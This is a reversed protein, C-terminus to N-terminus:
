TTPRRVALSPLAIGRAAAQAVYEDLRRRCEALEIPNAIREKIPQRQNVITGVVKPTLATATLRLQRFLAEAGAPDAIETLAVEHVPIRRHERRFRAARAEIDYLYAICRDIPDLAEDRDLARAAATVANPSSMWDPWVQNLPSFYGLEVFSKLVLAPDRRLHIVEVEELEGAVVDFFTKIFMHNTEAYVRARPRDACLGRIADVKTRRETFSAALPEVNARRLPTGSMAPEAEHFAAVGDATALLEALYNSGSRGPNICFLHRIV